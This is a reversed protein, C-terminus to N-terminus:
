IPNPSVFRRPVGRYLIWPLLGGPPRLKQRPTRSNYNAPKWMLSGPSDMSTGMIHHFIIHELIKCPVSPLSVPRYSCAEKKSGKKLLLFTHQYLYLRLFGRKNIACSVWYHVFCGVSILFQTRRGWVCIVLPLSTSGWTSLYFTQVPM